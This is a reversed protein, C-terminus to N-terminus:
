GFACRACTLFHTGSLEPWAICRAAEAATKSRWAAYNTLAFGAVAVARGVLSALSRAPLLRPVGALGEAM